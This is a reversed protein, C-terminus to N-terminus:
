LNVEFMISVSFVCLEIYRWHLLDTRSIETNSIM